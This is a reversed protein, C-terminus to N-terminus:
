PLASTAAAFRGPKASFMTKCHTSCFYYFRGDHEYKHWSKETVPMGCVPDKLSKPVTSPRHTLKVPHAPQTPDNMDHDTSEPRAM